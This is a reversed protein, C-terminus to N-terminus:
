FGLPGAPANFDMIQALTYFLVSLLGAYIAVKGVAGSRSMNQGVGAVPFAIVLFAFNALNFGLYVFATFYGISLAIFILQTRWQTLWNILKITSDESIKAKKAAAMDGVFVVVAMIIIVVIVASPVRQAASPADAIHLWYLGTLFLILVPVLGARFLTQM